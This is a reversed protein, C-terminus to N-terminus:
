KRTLMIEMMKNKNGDKEVRWSEMLVRGDDQFTMRGEDRVMQGSMPDVFEGITTRIKGDQECSGTYHLTYTGFNDRWESTYTQKMKDYGDIAMGEFPMGMFDGKWSAEVFRGDLLKRASMMGTMEMAEPVGPQWMKATYTWDGVLMALHEHHEGPAAMEQMAALEEESQAMAGAAMLAAVVGAAVFSFVSHKGMEWGEM